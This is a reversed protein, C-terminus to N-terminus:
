PQPRWDSFGSLRAVLADVASPADRVEPSPGPMESTSALRWTGREFVVTDSVTEFTAEVNDQMGAQGAVVMVWVDVQAQSPTHSTLRAALVSQRYVPRGPLQAAQDQLPVLETEVAAVLSAQYTEAADAALVARAKDADLPFLEAMLTAYSVGARLAADPSRPDPQAVSVPTAPPVSALPRSHAPHTRAGILIGISFMAAAATLM